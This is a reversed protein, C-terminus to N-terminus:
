PSRPPLMQTLRARRENIFYFMDMQYAAVQESTYPKHTDMWVYPAIQNAVRVREGELDIGETLALLDWTQNAFDQFCAPSQLCKKALVSSVDKVDIEASYFTEDMGWPMFWLRHTTPDAYIFYDDGPMTYPFSDFQGIVACMAWFRRFQPLNAYGSAAAIAADASSLMLADVLGILLSRDNPGAQLQYDDIYGPTFDVDTGDLLTGGANAFWRTLIRKKVSEVNAYLGYFTGNIRLLMHNSRSAPIGALRAVRYAVREHMMTFDNDMNDFTLDKLGFFEAGAVYEDINIRLSPKRTIPEFSGWGKLRVGVPGFTRGDFVLHGAVYQRPNSELAAFSAPTLTIEFQPM